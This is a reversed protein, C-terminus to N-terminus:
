PLSKRRGPQVRSTTGLDARAGARAGDGYGSGSISPRAARRLSPFAEAYARDVRAKRDVLVLETSTGPGAADADQAAQAQARRLREHVEAAFGYLWSRRYAALSAGQEYGRGRVRVLQGAAQLLLSTYLLEAREIDSEFGFLTVAGVKGQRADHMVWRLGLATATWGLLRAKGGSYPDEITIRQQGIADTVEGAEALRATDIGHRAILERAKANYIEAEEESGAREAKALLKRVRDLRSADDM